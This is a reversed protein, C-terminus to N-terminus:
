RELGERGNTATEVAHGDQHLFAVLVERVRPDDDVVLVRLPRPPADIVMGFELSRQATNPTENARRQSASGECAVGAIGLGHATAPRQSSNVGGLVSRYPAGSM